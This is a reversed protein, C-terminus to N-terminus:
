LKLGEQTENAQSKEYRKSGSQTTGRSNVEIEIRRRKDEGARRQIEEAERLIRSVTKYQETKLSWDEQRRQQQSRYRQM